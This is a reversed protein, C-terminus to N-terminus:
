VKLCLVGDVQTAVDGHQRLILTGVGGVVTAVACLNVIHEVVHLGVALHVGHTHSEEHLGVVGCVDGQHLIEVVHGLQAFADLVFAHVEHQADVVAVCPCVWTM